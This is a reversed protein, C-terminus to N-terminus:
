PATAASQATAIRRTAVIQDVHEPLSIAYVRCAEGLTLRGREGHIGSRKWAGQPLARLEAVLSQLAAALRSRLAAPDQDQYGRDRVYADQDFGPLLPENEAAIRRFREGWVETTDTLHGLIEVISWEGEAPRRRAVEASLDGTLRELSAPTAAIIRLALEEM